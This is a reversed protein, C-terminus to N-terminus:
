PDRRKHFNQSQGVYFPALTNPNRLVYITYVRDHKLDAVSKGGRRENEINVAARDEFVGLRVLKSAISTLTKKLMEAAVELTLGGKWLAILETDRSL